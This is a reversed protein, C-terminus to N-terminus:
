RPHTGFLWPQDKIRLSIALAAQFDQVSVAPTALRTSADLTKLDMVNLRPAAQAIIRSLIRDSEASRAMLLGM